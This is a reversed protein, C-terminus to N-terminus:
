FLNLLLIPISLSRLIERLYCYKYTLQRINMSSGSKTPGTCLIQSNQYPKFTSRTPLIKLNVWLLDLPCVGRKLERLTVRGRVKWPKLISEQRGWQHGKTWYETTEMILTQPADNEELLIQLFMQYNSAGLM